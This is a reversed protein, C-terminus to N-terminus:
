SDRLGRLQFLAAGYVFFVGAVLVLILWPRLFPVRFSDKEALQGPVATQVLYRTSGESPEFVDQGEFRAEFLTPGAITPIFPVIAEGGENTEGEGIDVFSDFLDTFVYFHLPAGVVRKGREDVVTAILALRAGEDPRVVLDIRTHMSTAPGVRLRGGQLSAHGHCLYVCRFKFIGSKTPTFRIVREPQEADLTGTSLGLGEIEIVHRNEHGHASDGYIFRLEVPQGESLKLELPGPEGNFGDESVVIEIVRVDGKMQDSGRVVPEDEEHMDGADSESGHPDASEAHPDGEHAWGVQGPVAITLMPLAVMALIVLGKRRM